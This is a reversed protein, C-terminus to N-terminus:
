SLPQTLDERKYIKGNIILIDIGDNKIFLSIADEEKEVLPEGGGNLSTNLLMPVNTLLFFENILNYYHINLQKNVTQIRSSNDVHTIAPVLDPNLVEYTYLMYPSPKNPYFWKYSEEELVSAAFPRFWERDKIISNIIEKNNKNRPDALLSRNGLARPGFESGNMFWAVIKGEAIYKAIKKYDVFFDPYEKSSYAIEKASYMHRKENLINHSVYLASGASIGDDGSAPCHHINKFIDSERIISNINCNLFSGGALCLNELGYPKVIKNITDMISSEFIYQATAAMKIGFRTNYDKKINSYTETNNLNYRNINKKEGGLDEWLNIYYEFMDIDKYSEDVYKDIDKVIRIDPEGYSALGMTSGAKAFPAGLGLAATFATYVQSVMNGSTEIYELKNGSGISILSNASQMDPSSSDLTFCIAEDFNSTYFSSSAHALHHPISIVSVEKGFFFGTLELIKNYFIPEIQHVVFNNSNVISLEPFSLQSNYSTISIMDIDTYKIKALNFAYEICETTIKTDKKIRTVRESSISIILKGDKVISLSADHGFHLGLVIV